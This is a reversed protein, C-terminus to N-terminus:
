SSDWTETSGPGSLLKSEAQIALPLYVDWKELMRRMTRPLFKHLTPLTFVRDQFQIGAFEKHCCIFSILKM